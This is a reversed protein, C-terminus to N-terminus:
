LKIKFKRKTRQCIGAASNLSLRFPNMREALGITISTATAGHGMTQLCRRLVADMEKTHFCLWSDTSNEDFVISGEDSMQQLTERVAAAIQGRNNVRHEFILDLAKQHKKYIKDCIEILQQDDVIDRRIIAIYNDIMLRVDPILDIGGSVSELTEVIDLYTM